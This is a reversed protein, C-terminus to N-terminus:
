SKAILSTLTKSVRSLKSRTRGLHRVNVFAPNIYVNGFERSISLNVNLHECVQKGDSDIGIYRKGQIASATYIAGGGFASQVPIIPNNKPIKLSKSDLSIFRALDENFYRRLESLASGYDYSCWYEHRLALIDYYGQPQNSSMMSWNDYNFCSLVSESTLDRNVGDLDVVYVYDVKGFEGELVELSRNRAESVRISRLDSNSGTHELHEVILRSEKLALSQLRSLTADKSESEVVIFHVKKFLSLASFIRQIENEVIFECDRVIGCVVIHSQSPPKM